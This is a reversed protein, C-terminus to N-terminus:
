KIFSVKVIKGNEVEYVAVAEVFKGNFRVKEKDIVKNNITIRNVIECLLDPTSEFLMQYVVRLEEHGKITMEGQENYIEIEAAYTDVFGDIDRANYAEVQQQVIQEPSTDQGYAVFSIFFSLILYNKMANM